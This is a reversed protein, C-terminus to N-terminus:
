YLTKYRHVWGSKQNLILKMRRRAGHSSTIKCRIPYFNLVIQFHVIFIAGHETAFRRDFIPMTFITRLSLKRFKPPHNLLRKQITSKKRLVSLTSMCVRSHMWADWAFGDRQNMINSKIKLIEDPDHHKVLYAALIAYAEEALSVGRKKARKLLLDYIWM